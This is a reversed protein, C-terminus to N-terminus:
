SKSPTSGDRGSREKRSEWSAQLENRLSPMVVGLAGGPDSKRGKSIEDHGVVYNFSFTYPATDKMWLLLKRLEAEQTDSYAQYTGAKRNAEAVVTRTQNAPICKGYWTSFEGAANPPGLLGASVMEIGVLKDNLNRGLGPWESEGCHSGWRNLPAGQYLTGDRDLLLYCHSQTRAWELASAASPGATFHVVAGRPFKTTYEGKTRMQWPLPRAWPVWQSM